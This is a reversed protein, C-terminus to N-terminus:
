YMSVAITEDETRLEKMVHAYRKYTIDPSTHGLRESVYIISAKKYILASAHTHRLSHATINKKIKLDELTKRLSKNIANNSLVKYKSSPSFFVLRHINDPTRMFLKKFEKMVLPDIGITRVSQENKTPGFGEAMKHNYGWVKNISVTNNDFDFDTRTLGVLEEFRMGSVLLLLVGYYSLGTHIRDFLVEYLKESEEFELHKENRSKPPKGTVKAKTAFNFRIIEDEGAHDLAAKIHGHVKDMVEKSYKEGYKNLFAQYDSRIINQIPKDLFYEKIYRLTDKYHSLTQNTVDTKYLTYWDEFYKIFPTPENQIRQGKNLKYEVEDAAVKAEGKTRFGGKRIPKYKGEVYRSITYQWTKGRKQFTAM